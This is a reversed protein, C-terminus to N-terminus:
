QPIADIRKATAGEGQRRRQAITVAQNADDALVITVNPPAAPAVCSCAFLSLLATLLLKM